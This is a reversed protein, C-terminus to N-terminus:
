VGAHGPVWYLGVNHRISMNNSEEQCQQVLPSTKAVKLVELSGQSESCIGVNKEPRDQTETEHVCALIVYLEAQFVTAHKGLSISLRRDVSQGYVGVGTGEETRYGDTFWVLGKVAPPTGPERTWEERTLMTVRYKPDLNFVPKMIDVRISFTTDSKQLRM